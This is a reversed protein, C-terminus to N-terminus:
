REGWYCNGELRDKDKADKITQWQMNSPLDCGGCQLAIIHDVVFGPRGKPYGTLKLFLRRRTMSRVYAGDASKVRCTYDPTSLILGTALLLTAIM